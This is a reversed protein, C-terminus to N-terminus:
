KGAAAHRRVIFPAFLADVDRGKKPMRAALRAQEEEYTPRDARYLLGMYLPDVSEVLTHAATRDAPDHNEPVPKGTRRFHDFQEKGMYTICPSMVHIFSFGKHRIAATFTRVMHEIDGSFTRAIYSVGYSLCLASPNIPQDISGYASTKTKLEMPSTPSLQGKTLGYIQNDMLIYTMDINRRAAHPLHGGGISFGDGDGGVALVTTSPSGLKVGSAIPIARGHISNFGYTKLYGPLRSSCGIGSICAIDKPPIQLEVFSRYLASLVGYDGCGPCWIPKLTSKYDALAFKNAPTTSESM